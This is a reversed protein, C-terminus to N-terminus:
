AAILDGKKFEGWNNFFHGAVKWGKYELLEPPCMQWIEEITHPNLLGEGLIFETISGPRKVAGRTGKCGNRWLGQIKTLRPTARAEMFVIRKLYEPDLNRVEDPKMAPCFFCSSKGPQPLGAKAIANKCDDRNWGLEMLPYWYDYAPDEQGKRKVAFSRYEETADYGIIKRVKKGAAWAQIAPEWSECYKDMPAIKWKQSCSKFGFALSPLTGNTLCNEELTYYPPWWKFKGVEYKVITVEPYGNKRLYANLVPIYEYTYTQESGTDAFLILDIPIGKKVFDTIYAVSDTGIGCSAVVPERM